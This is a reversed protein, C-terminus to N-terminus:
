RELFFLFQFLFPGRGRRLRRLSGFLRTLISFGVLVIRSVVLDESMILSCPSHFRDLRHIIARGLREVVLVVTRNFLELIM